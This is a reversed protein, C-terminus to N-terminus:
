TQLITDLSPEAIEIILISEKQHERNLCRYHLRSFAEAGFKRKAEAVIESKLGNLASLTHDDM